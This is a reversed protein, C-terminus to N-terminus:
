LGREALSKPLTPMEITGTKDSTYAKSKKFYEDMEKDWKEYALRRSIVAEAAEKGAKKGAKNKDQKMPSNGFGMGKM